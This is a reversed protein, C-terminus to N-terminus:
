VLRSQRPSVMTTTCRGQDYRLWSSHHGALIVHTRLWSSFARSRSTLWRSRSTAIRSRSTSIRSRSALIRSSSARRLSPRPRVGRLAAGLVLALHGLVLLAAGVRGALALHGLALAELV